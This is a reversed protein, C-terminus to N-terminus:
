YSDAKVKQLFRIESEELHRYEGELLPKNGPSKLQIPGIATRHLKIVPHGLIEAVRRIQRNRGEKLIIELCTTDAFKKILKVQAPRTKRGDLLVGQRWTRLVSETPHGEVLVRYTKPISHRPHTLWFTLEGDNTLIIAGTSDIDLRGVPHIGQGLHLEPPLLDLVTKRGQPDHCTSVVGIGKHLLLYVLTPRQESSVPKGDVTITDKQPDVKQGLHALDGNVRVRSRRIMEEAQRRSAIGWQSLIKQLREEM